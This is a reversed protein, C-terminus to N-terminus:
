QGFIPMHMPLRRHREQSMAAQTLKTWPVKVYDQFGGNIAPPRAKQCEFTRPHSIGPGSM